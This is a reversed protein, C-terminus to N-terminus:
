LRSLTEASILLCLRLRVLPQQCQWFAFNKPLGQLQSARTNPIDLWFLGEFATRDSKDESTKNKLCQYMLARPNLMYRESNFFKLYQPMSSRPAMYSMGPAVAIAEALKQKMEKVEHDQKLIKVTFFSMWFNFCVSSSLNPPFFDLVPKYTVLINHTGLYFFIAIYTKYAYSAYNSIFRTSDGATQTRRRACLLPRAQSPNRCEPQVRSSSGQGALLLSSRAFRGSGAGHMQEEPPDPSSCSLIARILCCCLLCYLIFTIHFIQTIIFSEPSCKSGMQRTGFLQAKLGLINLPITWGFIFINDDYEAEHKELGTHSEEASHKNGFLKLEQKSGNQTDLENSVSSKANSLTGLSKNIIQAIWKTAVLPLSIVCKM